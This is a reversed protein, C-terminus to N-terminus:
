IGKKTRTDNEVEANEIFERIQQMCMKDMMIVENNKKIYQEYTGGNIRHFLLCYREKDKMQVEVQGKDNKRIKM